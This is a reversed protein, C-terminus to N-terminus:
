FTKLPISPYLFPHLIPAGGWVKSYFVISNNTCIKPFRSFCPSKVFFAPPKARGEAGGRTISSKQLKNITLIDINSYTVLHMIPSCIKPQPQLNMDSAEM